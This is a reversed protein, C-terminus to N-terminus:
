MFGTGVYFLTLLIILEPLVIVTFSLIKKFTENILKYLILKEDEEHPFAVTDCRLIISSEVYISKVSPLLFIIFIGIVGHQVLPNTACINDDVSFSPVNVWLTYLLLAQLYFTFYVPFGVYFLSQLFQFLTFDKSNNEVLLFYILTGNVSSPLTVWDKKSHEKHKDFQKVHIIQRLEEVYQNKLPYTEGYNKQSEYDPRSM